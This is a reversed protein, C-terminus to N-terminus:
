NVIIGTKLANEIMVKEESTAASINEVHVEKCRIYGSCSGITVNSNSPAGTFHRYNNAMATQPRMIVLYPKKIGMAGSNGSFGGSHDVDMRANMFGLLAPAVNGSAIGLATGAIAGVMGMYSGQSLPYRVACECGYSYLVGGAGADRTVTVECLGTGTYADGHYKVGIKSRMVQSVDLEKFGIFPLYIYVRTYPSYDFVNGFYEQLNVSGCDMSSYQTPVTLASVGSDLYGVKINQVSGTIPQIFTAHLGIIAQMPDNFMKLLQDIFNNSWLWSGLQNVETLTPNYVSWLASASGVPVVIPPTLGGGTDPPNENETPTDYDSSTDTAPDTITQPRTGLSTILSIILDKLADTSDDDVTPDTQSGGGTNDDDFTYQNLIKTGSPLTYTGAPIEVPTVGDGHIVTGNPLTLTSGEPLIIKIPQDITVTTDSQLTTDTTSNPMPVPYYVITKITGDPQVVTQEVRNNYLDPYQSRIAASVDQLSSQDNIGSPTTAGSQDTIGEISENQRITGKTIIDIADNHQDGANVNELRHNAFTYVPDITQYIHSSIYWTENNYTRAVANEVATSILGYPEFPSYDYYTTSVPHKSMVWWYIFYKDGASSPGSIYGAFLTYIPGDGSHEFVLRGKGTQPSPTPFEFAYQTYIAAPDNWYNPVRLPMDSPYTVESGATDFLGKKALAWTLYDYADAPMYAQTNGDPKIGLLFNIGTKVVGEVGTDEMDSTLAYWKNPDLEDLGLSNWFTPNANYLRGAVKKGNAIGTVAAATAAAVNGLVAPMPSQQAVGGEYKTVGASTQIKGSQDILSNGAWRTQVTTAATGTQVNSNIASAVESPVLATSVTTQNVYSTVEGANNFVRYIGDATSAITQQPLLEAAQAPTLGYENIVNWAQASSVGYYDTLSSIVDSYDLTASM